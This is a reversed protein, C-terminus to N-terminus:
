GRVVVEMVEVDERGRYNEEKWRAAGDGYEFLALVSGQYVVAVYTGPKLEPGSPKVVALKM